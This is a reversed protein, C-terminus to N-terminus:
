NLFSKAANDTYSHDGGYHLLGCATVTDSINSVFLVTSGMSQLINNAVLEQVLVVLHYKPVWLMSHKSSSTETWNRVTWQVYHFQVNKLATCFINLCFWSCQLKDDRQFPKKWEEINPWHGLRVYQLLSVTFITVVHHGKELVTYYNTSLGPYWKIFHFAHRKIEPLFFFLLWWPGMM